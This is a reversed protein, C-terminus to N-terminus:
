RRGEINSGSGSCSCVGLRLGQQSMADSCIRVGDAGVLQSEFNARGRKVEEGQDREENEVQREGEAKMRRALAM